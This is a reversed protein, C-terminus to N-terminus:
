IWLAMKVWVFGFFPRISFFGGWINTHKMFNNHKIVAYTIKKFENTM